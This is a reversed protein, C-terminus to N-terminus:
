TYRVQLHHEEMHLKVCKEGHHLGPSQSRGVQHLLRYQSSLVEVTQDNNPIPGHYRVGVSHFAMPGDDPHAGKDTAQYPQWIESVQRVRQRICLCGEVHNALLVRSPNIEVGVVM